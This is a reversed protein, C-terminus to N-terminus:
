TGIRVSDNLYQKFSAIAAYAALCSTKPNEPFPLNETRTLLKGFEGIVEIEHINSTFEPSAIIKVKTKEPGLGALSLIASVNVNKPFGEIAQAANGEFIVQKDKISQLDIGMKEIYPAGALGKPHKCTTITVSDIVGSSASKLGDLGCIAGSPLIMHANNEKALDFLYENGLIGGISMVIIDKGKILVKECINACATKSSAEIIIDSVNILKELELIDAAVSLKSSLERAKNKDIDSLGRIKALNTFDKDIRKAFFSGITGCGVIGVEKM